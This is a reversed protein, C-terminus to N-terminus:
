DWGLLHWWFFVSVEIQEQSAGSRSMALVAGESRGDRAVIISPKNLSAPLVALGLDKLTALTAPTALLRPDAFISEIPTSPAVVFPSADQLRTSLHM